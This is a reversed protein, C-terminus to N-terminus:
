GRLRPSYTGHCSINAGGKWRPKLGAARFGEFSGLQGKRLSSGVSTLYPAVVVGTSRVPRAARVSASREQPTVMVVVNWVGRGASQWAGVYRGSVLTTGSTSAAAEPNGSARVREVLEGSVSKLLINSEDMAAADRVRALSRKVAELAARQEEVQVRLM